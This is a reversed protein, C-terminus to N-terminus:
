NPNQLNVNNIVVPGCYPAHDYEVLINHGMFPLQYYGCHWCWHYNCGPCIVHDCGMIKDTILRCNPNACPKLVSNSIKHAVCLLQSKDIELNELCSEYGGCFIAGCNEKSCVFFVPKNSENSDSIKEIVQDFPMEDFFSPLRIPPIYIRCIPCRHNSINIKDGPSYKFKTLKDYCSSCVIHKCCFPLIKWNINIFGTTVQCCQCTICTCGANKLYDMFKDIIETKIDDSIKINDNNFDQFFYGLNINNNNDNDPHILYDYYNFWPPYLMNPELLDFLVNLLNEQLNNNFIDTIQKIPIIKKINLIDFIINWNMKKYVDKKHSINNDPQYNNVLEEIIPLIDSMNVLDTNFVKMLGDLSALLMNNPKSCLRFLEKPNYSYKTIGNENQNENENRILNNQKFLPKIIVSTKLNIDKNCLMNYYKVHKNIDPDSDMKPDIDDIEIMDFDIIDDSIIIDEVIGIMFDSNNKIIEQCSRERNFKMNIVLDGISLNNDFYTTGSIYKLDKENEELLNITFNIAHNLYITGLTQNLNKKLISYHIGGLIPDVEKIERFILNYYHKDNLIKIIINSIISINSSLVFKILFNFGTMFIDDNKLFYDLMQEIDENKEQHHNFKMIIFLSSLLFSYYKTGIARFISKSFYKFNDLANITIDPIPTERNKNPNFDSKISMNTYLYNSLDNLDKLNIDMYYNTKTVIPKLQCLSGNINLVKDGKYNKCLIMINYIKSIPSLMKVKKLFTTAKKPTQHSNLISELSICENYRIIQKSNYWNIIQYIILYKTDLKKDKKVANELDSSILKIFSQLKETKLNKLYNILLNIPIRNYDYAFFITTNTNLNNPYDEDDPNCLVLYKKKKVNNLINKHETCNHVEIIYKKIINPDQLNDYQNKYIEYSLQNCKFDNFSLLKSM